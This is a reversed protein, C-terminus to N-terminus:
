LTYIHTHIYQSSSTLPSHNQLALIQFGVLIPYCMIPPRGLRSKGRRGGFCGFKGKVLQEWRLKLFDEVDPILLERLFICTVRNAPMSM